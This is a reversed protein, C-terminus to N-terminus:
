EVFTQRVRYIKVLGVEFAEQIKDDTWAPGSRGSDAKLLIRARTLKRTAAKGVLAELQRAPM